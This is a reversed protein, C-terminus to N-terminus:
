VTGPNIGERMGRKSNECSTEVNRVHVGSRLRELSFLFFFLRLSPTRTRRVTRKEGSLGTM